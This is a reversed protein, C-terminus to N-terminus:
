KLLKENIEKELENSSAHFNRILGHDSINYRSSFHYYSIEKRHRRIAALIGEISDYHGLFSNNSELGRGEFYYVWYKYKAKLIISAHNIRYGMRDSQKSFNKLNEEVSLNKDYIFNEKDFFKKMIFINPNKYKSIITNKDDEELEYYFNKEEM